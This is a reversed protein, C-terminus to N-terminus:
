ENYNGQNYNTYIANKNLATDTQIIQERTQIVKNKIDQLQLLSTNAIKYGEEYMKLLRLETKLIKKNTKNLKLLSVREKQLRILGIDLRNKENLVLLEAQSAKLSSIRKEESKDNFIALPINVGLRYIDQEPENELEAFVNIWEISNANVEAEKLAQNKQTQYLLVSPNQLTDADSVLNFTHSDDLELDQTIGAFGLLKYYTNLSKLDLTNQLSKVMEFDVQAQLKLGESISGSEYRALSIDYIKKAIELEQKGLILLKKTQMYQTYFLSIDRTFLAKKLAYSADANEINAKNLATKDAAVDWLRIDQSYNVRYGNDSSGIDPNFSAYELELSPNKYRLLISGEEKIKHADLASAKLYPSSQLAQSLFQEFNQGFVSTALLLTSILLRHIQTNINM